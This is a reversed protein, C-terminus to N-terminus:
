PLSFVHIMEDKNNCGEPAGDKMADSVMALQTASLFTVGEINCYDSSPFAYVTGSDLFSWSTASLTGIWLRKSEQSTVAVTFTGDPQSLLAIDSFDAFNVSSPLYLTKETVWSTGSQALVKIAGPLTGGTTGTCAQGECLGLLYDNDYRRLWAVGEFGKNTNSFSVDTPEDTASDGSAASDYRIVRGQSSGEAVVYFHQTNNGDYTIGEYQSEQTSSGGSAYSGSTLAPSIRGIKTMNDFVVYLSGNQFHVGSAAYETIGSLPILRSIKVERDLHLTALGQSVQEPEAPTEDVPANCALFVASCTALLIRRSM